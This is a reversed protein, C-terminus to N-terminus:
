YFLKRMFKNRYFYQMNQMELKKILFNKLINSVFMQETNNYIDFM